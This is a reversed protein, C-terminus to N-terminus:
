QQVVLAGSTPQTAYLVHQQAMPPQTTLLPAQSTVPPYPEPPGGNPAVHPGQTRQTQNQFLVMMEAMQTQLTYFKNVLMPLDPHNNLKLNWEVALVNPPSRNKTRPRVM